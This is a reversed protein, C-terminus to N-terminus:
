SVAELFIGPPMARTRDFAESREMPGTRRDGVRKSGERDAGIDPAAPFLPSVRKQVDGSDRLQEAVGLDPRSPVPASGRGRWSRAPLM